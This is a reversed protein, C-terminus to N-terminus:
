GAELAVIRAELATNKASLEKVANVLHWVIEDSGTVALIGSDRTTVWSSRVDKLEQAIVGLQTGTKSVADTSQVEGDTEIEEATKYEFNKVAIQNIISLGENNDVINKKIRRDSTTSWATTNASNYAGNSGGAFFTHAGKGTINYGFVYEGGVGASSAQAYAGVYVNSSGTTLITGSQFGLGTNTIGSTVNKLSESGSAVNYYGTTCNTLSIYGVAANSGVTTINTLAQYGVATNNAATTGDLLAQYGVAVNYSGTTNSYLSGTGFASNYIGTTTTEMSSSGCATNNHGTINFRLTNMGCATNYSGSTTARLSNVGFAANQTGTTSSKLSDGGMATNFSGTTLSEACHAGVGTNFAGTTLNVLNRYGVATNESATTNHHLAFTGVATNESGTSSNFLSQYGTAVNYNGTTNTRLSNYGTATNNSGTTNALLSGGGISVNYQGTTSVRLSYAGVATNEAGTTNANLAQFGCATNNVATTNSYLAADGVAVNNSATTNLYLATKGVAVNTSGTSNTNLALSGIAVNSNGTTNSRLTQNGIAIGHSGTTNNFAAEYGVATNNSGTTSYLLARSGLATSASATTNEQLAQTGCATNHTGTTNSQLASSGLATNTSVSGAGRGVTVSNITADATFTAGGSSSIRMRQSGNVYFSMPTSAGVASLQLDANAASIQGTLTGNYYWNANANSTTGTDLKLVPNVNKVIHLGASPSTTGIGVNGDRTMSMVDSKTGFNNRQFTLSDNNGGVYIAYGRREGGRELYIGTAATTSTQKLNIAAADTAGSALDAGVHILGRPNSNNIGVNGASDIAMRQSGNNEFAINGAESNSIYLTNGGQQIVAGNAGTGTTTNTLRLEATTNSGHIHLNTGANSHPSATGIGVNGNSLFAAATSGNPQLYINADAYINSSGSSGTIRIQASGSTDSVHLKKAPSSTGVGVNGASSIVMRETPATDANTDRTGFILDGKGFNSADTYEFAITAVANTASQNVAFNLNTKQNSAPGAGGAINVAAAGANGFSTTAASSVWLYGTTATLGGLAVKGANDILIKQSGGLSAALKDAGPSFIGTNSDGDFSLDPASASAANDLLLAGTMTDGTVNVFEGAQSRWASGDYIKLDYGSTTDLWQEGKENGQQGSVTGTGTGAGSATFVVGVTNASAGVATFDTNGLTLIQYVTGSVLADAATTAPSSNPAATGIHVPGVKVLDGNSDKFFLGPSAQNTNVAIQGASLVNPIPRKHASSSRLNQIAM